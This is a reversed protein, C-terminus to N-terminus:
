PHNDPPLTFILQREHLLAQADINVDDLLHHM